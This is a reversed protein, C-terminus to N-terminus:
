VPRRQLHRRWQSLAFLLVLGAILILYLAISAGGVPLTATSFAEIWGLHMREGFDSAWIAAVLGIVVLLALWGVGTRRPKPPNLISVAGEPVGHRAEIDRQMAKAALLHGQWFVDFLESVGPLPFDSLLVDLGLYGAMKALTGMSAGARVASYLLFISAGASYIIGAGPIWTLLGDMGVGVPGFGIVRDSLKKVTEASRWASHARERSM